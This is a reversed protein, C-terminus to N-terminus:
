NKKPPNPDLKEGGAVILMRAATARKITFHDAVRQVMALEEDDLSIGLYNRKHTPPANERKAKPMVLVYWM